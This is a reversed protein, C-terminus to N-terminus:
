NKQRLENLHDKLDAIRENKEAILERLHKVEAVMAADGVSVTANGTASAPSFAGETRISVGPQEDFFITVPVELVQAIKELTIIKTSNNRVMLHVQQESIGVRQALEIISIGKKEALTKVLQLNAM